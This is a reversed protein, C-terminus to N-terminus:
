AVGKKEFFRDLSNNGKLAVFAEYRYQPIAAEFANEDLCALCLAMDDLAELQSKSLHNFDEQYRDLTEQSMDKCYHGHFYNSFQM